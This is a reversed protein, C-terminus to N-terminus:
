TTKSSFIWIHRKSVLRCTHLLAIARVLNQDVFPVYYMCVERWIAAPHLQKDGREQTQSLLLTVNDFLYRTNMYFPVSDTNYVPIM